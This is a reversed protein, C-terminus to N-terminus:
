ATSSRMMSARAGHQAEGGHQQQEHAGAHEAPQEAVVHRRQAREGLLRPDHERGIRLMADEGAASGLQDIEGGGDIPQGLGIVPQLDLQFLAGPCGVRPQFLLAVAEGRQHRFQGLAHEQAVGFPADQQVVFFGLRQEARRRLRLTRQLAQDAQSARYERQEVAILHRM